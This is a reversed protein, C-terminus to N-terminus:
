RAGRPAAPRPLDRNTSANRSMNKLQEAMAKVLAAFMGGDAGVTVADASNPAALAAVGDRDYDLGPVVVHTKVNPFDAYFQRIAPVHARGGAGATDEGDTFYFVQHERISCEAAYVDAVFAREGDLMAAATTFVPSGGDRTGDPFAFEKLPRHPGYVPPDMMVVARAVVLDGAAPYAAVAEDKAMQCAKAFLDHIPRTSGSKDFFCTFKGLREPYTPAAPGPAPLDATLGFRSRATSTKSGSM